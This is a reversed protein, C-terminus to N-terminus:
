LKVIKHADDHSNDDSSSTLEGRLRKQGQPYESDVCEKAKSYVDKDCIDINELKKSCPSCFGGSAFRGSAGCGTCGSLWLDNLGRYWKPTTLFTRNLLLTTDRRILENLLVKTCEETPHGNVWKEPYSFINVKSLNDHQLAIKEMRGEYDGRITKESPTIKEDPPITDVFTFDVNENQSVFTEFKNISMDIRKIMDVEDCDNRVNIDNNGGAIILHSFKHFDPNDTVATVLQGTHAGSMCAVDARLGVNEVHRLCSDGVIGTKINMEKKKDKIDFYESLYPCAGVHLTQCTKCLWEKGKYKLLLSEGQIDLRNPIKLHQKGKRNIVLFRNGNFSPTDKHRQACTKKVVEGFEAFAADFAQNPIVSASGM